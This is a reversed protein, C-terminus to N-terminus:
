YKVFHKYIAIELRDNKYRNGNKLDIVIVGDYLTYLINFYYEKEGEFFIIEFFGNNIKTNVEKEVPNLYIFSSLIKDIKNRDHLFITEKKYDRYISNVKNVIKIEKVKNSDIILDKEIQSNCSYCIIMFFIYTLLKKM